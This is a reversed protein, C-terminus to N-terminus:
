KKDDLPQLVGELAHTVADSGLLVSKVGPAVNSWLINGTTGDILVAHVAAADSPSMPAVGLLVGMTIAVTLDKAQMGGSKEFGEFKVMMLMDTKAADAFPNVAPGLTKQTQFAEKEDMQKSYLDKTIQDYSVWIRGMEARMQPYQQMWAEFDVPQVQFGRKALLPPLEKLIQARIAAERDPMRNTGDFSHYEMKVDPTLIAVTKHTKKYEAFGPHQRISTTCASACVLVLLLSLRVFSKM